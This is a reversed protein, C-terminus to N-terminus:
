QCIRITLDPRIFVIFGMPKELGKPTTQLFAYKYLHLSTDKLILDELAVISFEKFPTSCGLNMYAGEINKMITSCQKELVESTKVLLDKVSDMVKYAESTLEIYYEIQKKNFTM